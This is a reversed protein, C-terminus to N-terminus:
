KVNELFLPVSGLAVVSVASNEFEGLIWKGDTYKNVHQL